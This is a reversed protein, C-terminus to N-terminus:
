LPLKLWQIPFDVHLPFLQKKPHWQGLPWVSGGFAPHAQNSYHFVSDFYCDSYDSKSLGTTNAWPTASLSISLFDISNKTLRYLCFLELHLSYFDLKFWLFLWPGEILKWVQALKCIWFGKFLPFATDEQLLDMLSVSLIKYDKNWNKWLSRHGTSILVLYFM